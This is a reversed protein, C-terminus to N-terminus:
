TTNIAIDKFALEFMSVTCMFLNFKKFRFNKLRRFQKRISKHAFKGKETTDLPIVIIEADKKRHLIRIFSKRRNARGSKRESVCIQEDSVFVVDPSSLFFM